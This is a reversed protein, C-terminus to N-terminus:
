GVLGLQSPSSASVGQERHCKRRDWFPSCRRRSQCVSPLFHARNQSCPDSQAGFVVFVEIYNRPKPSVAPDATEEWCLYFSTRQRLISFICNDHLGAISSRPIVWFFLFCLSLSEYVWMNMATNNVVDLVDFFGLTRCVIFLCFMTHIYFPINDLWFPLIDQCTSCCPHVKLINYETFYALSLLVFVKHNWKHLSDLPKGWLDTLLDDAQLAPSGPEIGPDPFDGPSPFPLGNWYEQRSFEM